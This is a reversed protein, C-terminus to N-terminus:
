RRPDDTLDFESDAVAHDSNLTALADSSLNSLNASHQSRINVLCDSNRRQTNDFLDSMKTAFQTVVPDEPEVDLAALQEGVRKGVQLLPKTAIFQCILDELVPVYAGTTFTRLAWNQAKAATNQRLDADSALRELVETLRSIEVSSPVKFVLDDPLDAYFGADAVIIPRGSKMGEIASASAGELVPNRLCSLIDARELESVLTADDVEGLIDLQDFGVSRCVAQLRMRESHTIAGVLRLRCTTRLMPSSGISKIVADVCKNPNIVGITTITLGCEKRKSLPQIGRGAFFLPAVALPGPCSNALRHLYFQSHALAAGCRRGLWETMPMIEAIQEVPANNQWAKAALPLASEGYTLRVEREHIDEGLGMHALCRNFFNYLYYDHFIGLCPITEAFALTGAHFNYNDGFNLIVVDYGQEVDNPSVDHWWVTPLPSPHSQVANHREHESRIILVEHARASLAGTIAASVRGIASRQDFPTVWAIKM